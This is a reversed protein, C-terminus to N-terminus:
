TRDLQASLVVRSTWSLISIRCILSQVELTLLAIAMVSRDAAVPPVWVHGSSWGRGESELDLARGLVKGVPLSRHDELAMFEGLASHCVHQQPHAPACSCAEGRGPPWLLALLRLVLAWSLAALPSWPM